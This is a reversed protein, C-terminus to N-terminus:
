KQKWALVVRDKGALDKRIEIRQWDNDRALKSVAEGQNAGIECALFGTDQLYIKGEGFLKRYFSLGDGEDTLACRPEYLRVEPMLTDWEKKAIYPPNSLIASFSKEVKQLPGWFDGQVFKARESVQLYEANKKAVQIAQPSIDVGIGRLKSRVHLLSLLVAGSGVGLDVIKGEREKPLYELATEVLIETDPRPVLVDDNVFFPLGYFEREQLIQAVPKRKARWAVMEHFRALEPPQLPQDFNVYLYLRDKQLLHGLLVEADRRPEPVGKEQFFKHTWSLISGITWVIKQKEM